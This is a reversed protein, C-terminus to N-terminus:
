SQEMLPPCPCVSGHVAVHWSDQQMQELQEGEQRVCGEGGKVV